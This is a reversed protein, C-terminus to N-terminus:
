QSSRERYARLENVICIAILDTQTNAMKYTAITLSKHTQTYITQRVVQLETQMRAPTALFKFIAVPRAAFRRPTRTLSPRPLCCLPFAAFGRPTRTQSPRPPRAQTLALTASGAGQCDDIQIDTQCVQSRHSCREVSRYLRPTTLVDWFDLKLFTFKTWIPWGLVGGFKPIWDM